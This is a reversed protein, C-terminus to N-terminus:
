SRPAGPEAVLPCLHRSAPLVCAPQPCRWHCHCLQRGDVGEGGLQGPELKREAVQQSKTCPGRGRGLGSSGPPGLVAMTAAGTGQKEAAGAAGKPGPGKPTPQSGAEPPTPMCSCAPTRCSWPEGQHVPLRPAQAASSCLSGAEMAPMLGGVRPTLPQALSLPTCVGPGM